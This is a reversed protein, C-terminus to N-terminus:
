VLPFTTKMFFIKFGTGSRSYSSDNTKQRRIERNKGTKKDANEECALWKDTM